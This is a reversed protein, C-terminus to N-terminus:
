CVGIGINIATGPPALTGGPPNQQIVWGPWACNNIPTVQGLVFGRATIQVVADTAPWYLLDPVASPGVSVSLDVESGLPAVTGGAPDQAFVTGAPAPNFVRRVTMPNLSTKLLNVAQTENMGVVNPVPVTFQHSSSIVNFGGNDLKIPVGGTWGVYLDLVFQRSGQCNPSVDATLHYNVPLHHVSNRIYYAGQSTTDAPSPTGDDSSQNVRCVSGDPNLQNLQIFSRFQADGHDSGWHNSTCSKTNLYCSTIQFTGVVDVQTTDATATFLKRDPGSFVHAERPTGAGGLYICTPWTGESNCEHNPWVLTGVEGASSIQLWTGTTPSPTGAFATMRYGTRSGDRTLTRLECTYTGDAPAMLLLSEKLGIEGAGSGRHNTGSGTEAITNPPVSSDLCAIHNDVEAGESSDLTVDLRDM